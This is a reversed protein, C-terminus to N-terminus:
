SAGTFRRLRAVTRRTVVSRIRRPPTPAGPGERRAADISSRAIAEAQRYSRDYAARAGDLRPAVGTDTLDADVLRDLAAWTESGIGALEVPLDLESWAVRVRRLGPDVFAAIEAAREATPPWPGLSGWPAAAAWDDLLDHYRVFTRSAGRTAREAGLMLNLWSAVGRADDLGRNYSLRKSGLVEAPPRLMTVFSPEVGLDRAADTWLPVFWVLRPDKVLLHDAHALEGALWDRVRARVAPDAGVRATRRWATPRADSVEVEARGLLEDHLDVVWRPEGFGRPNTADASVEPSPVVLGLRRLVGTVTSTGSRGAGVVLTLRRPGRSPTSM